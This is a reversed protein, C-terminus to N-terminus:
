NVPAQAPVEPRIQISQATLSGDSNSSGNVMVNQGVALDSVAGQTTKGVTTSAGLFIIKSGGDPGNLKITISKDDKSIVQGTSFGGQGARRGTGAGGQGGRFQGFAQQRQEPTMNQINAFSPLKKAQYKIGGFFGGVLGVALAAVAVGIMKKNMYM